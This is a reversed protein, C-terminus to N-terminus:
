LIDPTQRLRRLLGTLRKLSLDYHMPLAAHAEKWPLNVEYRGDKFAIQKQFQQYVDTEGEQIGFSELDWFSKLTRDLIRDSEEQVYDDVM